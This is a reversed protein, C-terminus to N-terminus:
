LSIKEGKKLSELSEDAIKKLKDKDAVSKRAKINQEKIIKKREKWRQRRENRVSMIKSRMEMAKEHNNNAENRTEIYEEHKKNSEAISISLEHVLKIYAKHESQSLDYYKQVLEHEEDAKKFLQDIAQDKESIDVQLERQKDVHKKVSDFEKKKERIKEILENEDQPSLPVTEQRYELMQVDAKLEELRLPLNKFMEGKRQRRAKILEKAQQQLENRFKKHEKMKAVIDDRKSRHKKMDEKIEKHKANLMDREERLMKAMDNLENRRSIYSQFKKEANRIQELEKKKQSDKAM